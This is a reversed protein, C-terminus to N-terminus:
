TKLGSKYTREMVILLQLTDTFWAGQMGRMCIKGKSVGSIGAINGMQLM